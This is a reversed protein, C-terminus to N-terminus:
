HGIDLQLFAPSLTVGQTPVSPVAQGRKQNPARDAFTYSM